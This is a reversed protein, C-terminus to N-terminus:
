RVRFWHAERRRCQLLLALEGAAGRLDGIDNCCSARAACPQGPETRTSRPRTM